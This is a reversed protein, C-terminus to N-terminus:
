PAQVVCDLVALNTYLQDLIKDNRTSKDVCRKVGPLNELDQLLDDNQDGAVVIACDKFLRQVHDVGDIIHDQLADKPPRFEDTCSLYFAVFM